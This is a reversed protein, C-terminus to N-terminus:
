DHRRRAGFREVGRFRDGRARSCRRRTRHGQEERKNRRRRIEQGVEVGRRFCSCRKTSFGFSEANKIDSEFCTRSSATAVATWKSATIMMRLKKPTSTMFRTSTRGATPLPVSTPCPGTLRSSNNCGTLCTSEWLTKGPRGWPACDFPGKLIPGPPAADFLNTWATRLDSALREIIRRRMVSIESESRRRGHSFRSFLRFVVQVHSLLRGDM